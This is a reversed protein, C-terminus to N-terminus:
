EISMVGDRVCIRVKGIMSLSEAIEPLSSYRDATFFLKRTAQEKNNFVVSVNYWRGIERVVDLLTADDFYFEGRQWATVPYTDIQEVAMQGNFYTACDGPVIRKAECGEAKVELSGEVLTVEVPNDDYTNVNFETGLVKTIVNKAKVVFPRNSDHQVSFYAEGEVEVMREHASFSTPFRLRSHANLTVETGDELIVCITKHAPTSITRMALSSAKAKADATYAIRNGKVVRQAGNEDSIIVDSGESAVQQYAVLADQQEPKMFDSAFFFAFLIVAAASIAVAISRLSFHRYHRHRFGELEKEVDPLADPNRTFFDQILNEEESYEFQTKNNDM